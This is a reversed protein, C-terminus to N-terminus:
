GRAAADRAKIRKAIRLVREARAVIPIDIM